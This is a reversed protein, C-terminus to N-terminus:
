CAASRRPRREDRAARDRRADLVGHQAAPRVGGCRACCTSAATSCGCRPAWASRSTAAHSGVVGGGLIVVKAPDVGPVGGLLMGAGATRRRSTTRAPRSRWGARRGRVDAGAAAVRRDAVDRDRLRHLRRRERRPGRRSPIPRSTCTPSSSRARASCRREVAQPEKVKVIMDAAAFVEAATAPSRRARRRYADDDMGIGQGANREVVVQTATPSWSASAAPCRRRPERPGKNGESRRHAHPKSRPLHPISAPLRPPEASARLAVAADRDFPTPNRSSGLAVRRRRRRGATTERARM